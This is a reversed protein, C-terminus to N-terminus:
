TSKLETLPFAYMFVFTIEKGAGALNSAGGRSLTTREKKEQEKKKTAAEM